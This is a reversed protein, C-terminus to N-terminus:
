VEEQMSLYKMTGNSEGSSLTRRLIGSNNATSMGVDWSGPM